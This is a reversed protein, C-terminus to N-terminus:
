RGGIRAEHDEKLHDVMLSYQTVFSDAADYKGIEGTMSILPSIAWGCDLPCHLHDRPSVSTFPTVTASEIEFTRYDSHDGRDHDPDDPILSMEYSTDTAFVYTQIHERVQEVTFPEGNDPRLTLDVLFKM